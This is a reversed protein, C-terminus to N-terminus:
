DNEEDLGDSRLSTGATLGGAPLPGRMTPGKLEFRVANHVLRDLIADALTPDAFRSHWGAVPYQSLLMVSRQQYRDDFLDLLLRAEPDTVPDRLWEDFVLLPVRRCGAVTQPFRRREEALLFDVLWRHTRQFRVAIGRRCLHQTIVSSLFTKGLGTAGTIIVNTGARIWDEQLLTLFQKKKLNRIASFNVDDVSVARPVRAQKLLRQTQADVRRAYEADVLLQLREDFALNRYAAHEEQKILEDILGSLRFSRLRELTTGNLM